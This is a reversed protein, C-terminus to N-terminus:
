LTDFFKKTNLSENSRRSNRYMGLSFNNADLLVVKEIKEDRVGTMIAAEIAAGLAVTEQSNLSKNLEDGNFYDKM